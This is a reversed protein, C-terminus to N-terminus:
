VHIEKDVDFDARKLVLLLGAALLMGALAAQAAPSFLLDSHRTLTVAFLWGGTSVAVAPVAGARPLLLLCVAAVLLSPLVWSFARLGPGPLALAALATLSVTAGLVATMRLLVLRFGSPAAVTGLEHAPDGHRGISVAVGVAPLLPAAALFAVSAMAVESWALLVATVLTLVTGCLWNVRLLPTAALLRATHDPAGAALLLREARGPVPADLTHDLRRWGREVPAPDATAALRARCVACGDVHTEVPHLEGRDLAGLAYRELVDPVPHRAGTERGRNM